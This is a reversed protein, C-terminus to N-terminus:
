TALDLPLDSIDKIRRGDCLTMLMEESDDHGSGVVAKKLEPLAFHYLCDFDGTGLALSALRSPLCEATVVVVHPLKGKRNRILNLAETRANQSRDSRLTFKCSVSAHLIPFPNYRKRLSAMEAIDEGVIPGISNIDQDDMPNRLIVLDPSISYDHGLAAALDRSAKAARDLDVLHAYQEYAAIAMGSRQTIQEIEWDGPRLHDLKLFTKVLFDRVRAEFKNGSTQGSPKKSLSKAQGITNITNTSFKVSLKSDKDANAPIRNTETLVDELLTRHFEERQKQLLPKPM